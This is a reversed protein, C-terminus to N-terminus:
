PRHWLHSHSIGADTILTKLHPVMSLKAALALTPVINSVLLYKITAKKAAAIKLM